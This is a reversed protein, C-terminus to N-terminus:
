NIARFPPHSAGAGTEEAALEDDARISHDLEEALRYAVTRLLPEVEGGPYGALYRMRMLMQRKHFPCLRRDPHASLWLLSAIVSQLSTPIGNEMGEQPLDHPANM